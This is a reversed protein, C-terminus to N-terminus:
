WWLVERADKKKKAKFFLRLPPDALLSAGRGSKKKEKSIWPPNIGFLFSMRMKRSYLSSFRMRIKGVEESEKCM